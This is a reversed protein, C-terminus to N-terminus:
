SISAMPLMFLFKLCRSSCSSSNSFVLSARFSTFWYICSWNSIMFWSNWRTVLSISALNLFTLLFKSRLSIQPFSCPVNSLWADTWSLPVLSFNFFKVLKISIYFYKSFFGNSKIISLSFRPLFRNTSASFSVAVFSLFMFKIMPFFWVFASVSRSWWFCAKSCLNNSTSSYSFCVM